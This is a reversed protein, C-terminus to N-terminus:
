RVENIGTFKFPCCPVRSYLYNARVFAAPCRPRPTQVDSDTLFPFDLKPNFLSTEFPNYWFEEQKYGVLGDYKDSVDPSWGPPLDDDDEAIGQFRLFKAITPDEVIPTKPGDLKTSVSWDVIPRASFSSKM